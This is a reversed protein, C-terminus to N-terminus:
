SPLLKHRYTDVGLTDWAVFVGRPQETELLYLMMNTWGVVANVKVSRPISHYARHALNDGDVILLPRESKSSGAVRRQDDCIRHMRM